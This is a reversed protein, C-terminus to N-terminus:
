RQLLDHLAQMAAGREIIKGHTIGNTDSKDLASSPSMSLYERLQRIAVSEQEKKVVVDTKAEDEENYTSAYRKFNLCQLHCCQMIPSRVAM